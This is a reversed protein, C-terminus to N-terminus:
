SQCMEGGWVCRDHTLHDTGWNSFNTYTTDTASPGAVLTLATINNGYYLRFFRNAGSVERTMRVMHLDTDPTWAYTILNTLGGGGTVREIDIRSNTGDIQIAYGRIDAHAIQLTPQNGIIFYIVDTAASLKFWFDWQTSINPNQGPAPTPQSMFKPSVNLDGEFLLPMKPVARYQNLCTHFGGSVVWGSTNKAWQRLSYVSKPM